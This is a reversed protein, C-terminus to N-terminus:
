VEVAQSWHQTYDCTSLDRFRRGTDASDCISRSIAASKQAQTCHTNSSRGPAGQRVGFRQGFCMGAEGQKVLSAIVSQRGDEVKQVDKQMRGEPVLAMTPLPWVEGESRAAQIM